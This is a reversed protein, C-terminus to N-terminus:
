KNKTNKNKYAGIAANTTNEKLSELDIAWQPPNVNLHYLLRICLSLM